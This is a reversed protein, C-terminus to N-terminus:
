PGGQNQPPPPVTSSSTQPLPTAPKIKKMIVEKQYIKDPIIRYGQDYWPKQREPSHDVNVTFEIEEAPTPQLKVKEAEMQKLEEESYKILHYIMFENTINPRNTPMFIPDPIFGNNISTLLEDLDPEGVTCPGATAKIRVIKREVYDGQPNVRPTSKTLASL